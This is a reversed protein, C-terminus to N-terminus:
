RVNGELQRPERADALLAEIEDRLQPSRDTAIRELVRVRDELMQTREAMQAIREPGAEGDRDAEARRHELIKEVIGHAFGGIISVMVVIFVFIMLLDLDM